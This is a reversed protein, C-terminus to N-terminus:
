QGEVLRVVFTAMQDRRVPAAPAFRRDGVGAALGAAAAKNINAEHARGDDDDFADPAAPLGEAAIYEATRVLFTAMQERTVEAGPAYRRATVGQVIGARALRDIAAQHVSGDDDGFADGGDPLGAGAALVANAIFTAMQGRTVSAAPSFTTASTGSALSLHVACNISRAHTSAPDVDGFSTSPPDACPKGDPDETDAAPTPGAPAQPTPAPSPTPSATPVPSPSASPSPAPAGGGGGGGGGGGAPAAVSFTRVAEARNGAADVAAVTLRHEGAGLAVTDVSTQYPATADSGVTAGDVAFAVSVPAADTVGASFTMVGSVTEGAAPATISVAPATNDIRLTVPGSSTTLGPRDTARATLSVNGDPRTRTDLTMTYPPAPRTGVVSNGLLFEVKTVGYDDGATAALAVDGRVWGGATTLSVAPPNVNLVGLAAPGAVRGASVYGGPVAAATSTLASTLSSRSTQPSALAGALGSVFASAGSTGCWSSLTGGGRALTANCGPAALAVWSGYNSSSYRADSTDSGAVAVAGPYAAPYHVADTGANGAAAVVLVGAAAAAAVKDALTQNFTTGALSLNIVDAGAGVAYEVASAVNASSGGGTESLVKLPLIACRPCLGAIGTSNHQAAIMGTVATGHSSPHDDTPDEDKNVLDIGPLFTVGALDPHLMDVGTDLVAVVTDPRGMTTDWVVDAGTRRVGWQSGYLDDSPTVAAYVPADREAFEVRPDANLRALAGSAETAPVEVTTLDGAPLTTWDVVTVAEDLRGVAAAAQAPAASVVLTTTPGAAAQVVPAVAPVALVACALVGVARILRAM